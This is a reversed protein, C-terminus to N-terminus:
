TEILFKAVGNTPNTGGTHVTGLEQPTVSTSPWVFMGKFYSDIKVKELGKFLYDDQKNTKLCNAYYAAASAVIDIVQLQPYEKSSHFTLSRAKM